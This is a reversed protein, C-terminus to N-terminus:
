GNPQCKCNGAVRHSVALVHMALQMRGRTGTRASIRGLYTKVTHEGIRLIRAIEKNSHDCLVLEVIRVQRLSLGIEIIVAAWHDAPLPLPSKSSETATRTRSNAM